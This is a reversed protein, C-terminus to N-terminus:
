GAITRRRTLGRRREKEFLVVEEEGGPGMPQVLRGGPALQEALPPPVRTFAAAVIIAEYPAREPLGETGDGVVVEANTTGHRALNTRTAEAIDPWREVGWVSGCLRALLATQWGYGAGIELVRESGTLGLAEVMMAVLSPQTTVQGRPITLPEDQYARGALHPPVFGARPVARVADLVRADGVGAATIVRVLHEPDSVAGM